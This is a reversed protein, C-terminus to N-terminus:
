IFRSSKAMFCWAKPSSWPGIISGKGDGQSWWLILLAQEDNPAVGRKIAAQNVLHCSLLTASHSPFAGYELFLLRGLREGPKTTDNSKVGPIRSPEFGRWSELSDIFKLIGCTTSVDSLTITIWWRRPPKRFNPYGWSMLRPLINWSVMWIWKIPTEMPNKWRIQPASVALCPPSIRLGPEASRFHAM